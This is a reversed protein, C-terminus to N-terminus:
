VRVPACLLANVATALTQWESVKQGLAAAGRRTLRYYKRERGARSTKWEGLILGEQELRHLWPYITGEKWALVNNTRRNVDQIIEYGYMEREALLKLMIPAVTGKMMELAVTM